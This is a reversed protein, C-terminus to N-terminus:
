ELEAVRAELAIIMQQQEQMAKVLLATLRNYKVGTLEPRYTVLLPNVDEVEEAVFGVDHKGHGHQEDWDFERARLQLVEALGMDTDVINSKWERLSSCDGILSGGSGDWCLPDTGVASLDTIYVDQSFLALGTSDLVFAEVDDGSRFKLAGGAKKTAIQLIGNDHHGSIYAYKNSSAAGWVMYGTNADPTLLSFGSDGGGEAIVEDASAIATVSGASGTHVHLTGDGAALAGVTM